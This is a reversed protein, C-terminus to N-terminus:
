FNFYIFASVSDRATNILVLLLVTCLVFSGAGVRTAPYRRANDLLGEGIRNSNPALVALAGLALCWLTGTSLQLGANWLLPHVGSAGGAGAMARLMALAGELTAARFFVWAVVVCLMTLAWSAGVFGRHRQLRQSLAAGCLANFGHHGMLYAGHLAGWLVFSWSAGHWLGGLVMTAALNLYRRLAGRRNGGLAIDLSDRRFTSLSIHWRRWFDSINRARYPSDFNHPLRINFMWSLGIAMDSYGSFDFYLQLTYALAALWAEQADPLTGADAPNFVADAYPAIGDALVVKKLLGITFIAMGASFHASDFRYTTSRAFQPMMQAHHRVPGAVLHPFYTIFLGYHVLQFERVKGQWTDVLFAIQTFSYFSIGIPLVVGTLVWHTGLLANASDLFFNAYKFYALLLLNFSVGLTLWRRAAGRDQADVLRAIRLGLSFNTGISLLLLLTFRPMWWGYFFLSVGFLWAAAARQSRRGLAFFGALAV